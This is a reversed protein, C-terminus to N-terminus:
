PLHQQDQREGKQHPSGVLQPPPVRSSTDRSALLDALFTRATEPVDTPTRTFSHNGRASVVEAATGLASRLDEPSGFPDREGQIVALRTGAGTVLHAEAARSKEPKGPPHLPFALALVADAGVAKATRCAVRAGSSRGGVVLPRPLAGRGSTLAEMVALWAVDLRAPPTAVTRGAVRWPQEVLVVLWGQATLTTLALLDASWSSGGAGHGLVLSGCPRPPRWLHARAMGVPTHIQKVSKRVPVDRM